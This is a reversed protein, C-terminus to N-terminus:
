CLRVCRGVCGFTAYRKGNLVVTPGGFLKAFRGLTTNSSTDNMGPFLINTGDTRTWTRGDTSAAHMIRQGPSDEDRPSNKWSLFLSSNHYDLMAAHNYGGLAKTARYVVTTEIGAAM